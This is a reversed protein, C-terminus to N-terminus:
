ATSVHGNCRQVSGAAHMDARSGHRVETHGEKAAIMLPTFGFKDKEEVDSGAALLQRCRSVSGEDAAYLLSM